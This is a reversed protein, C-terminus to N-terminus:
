LKSVIKELAAGQQRLYDTLHNKHGEEEAVAYMDKAVALVYKKVLEVEKICYDLKKLIEDPTMAKM